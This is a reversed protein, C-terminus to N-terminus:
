LRSCRSGSCPNSTGANKAPVSPVRPMMVAGRHLEDGVGRHLLHDGEAVRRHGIGGVGHRHDQREPRDGALAQVRPDDVDDAAAEPVGRHGREGATLSPHEELNDALVGALDPVARLRQQRRGPADVAPHDGVRM